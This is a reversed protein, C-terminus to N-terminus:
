VPDEEGRHGVARSPLTETEFVLVLWDAEVSIGPLTVMAM